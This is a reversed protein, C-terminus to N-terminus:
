ARLWDAQWNKIRGKIDKSTQLKGDRIDRVLSELEADSAFRLAVM